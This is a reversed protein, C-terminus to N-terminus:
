KSSLLFNGSGIIKGNSIIEIEYKTNESIPILETLDFYYTNDITKRSIIAQEDQNETALIRLYCPENMSPLSLNIKQYIIDSDIFKVYTPQSVPIVQREVSQEIVKHEIIQNETVEIPNVFEPNKILSTIVPNLVDFLDTDISANRKMLKNDVTIETIVNISVINQGPGSITDSKYKSLNLGINVDGFVNDENSVRISTYGKFADGFVVVHSIEITAIELGFYDLISKELTKNETTYPHITIFHSEDFSISTKIFDPTPKEAILPIFENPYTLIMGLPDELVVDEFRINTAQLMINNRSSPIKVISEEIWFVGNVLEKNGTLYFDDQQLLKSILTEGTTMDIIVVLIGFLNEFTFGQRLLIRVESYSTEIEKSNEPSPTLLPESDYVKNIRHSYDGEKWVAFEIDNQDQLLYQNFVKWFKIQEYSNSIKVLVQDNVRFDTTIM